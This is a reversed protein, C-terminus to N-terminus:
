SVNRRALEDAVQRTMESPVLAAFAEATVGASQFAAALREQPMGALVAAMITDDDGADRGSMAALLVTMQDLRAMVQDLTPAAGVGAM